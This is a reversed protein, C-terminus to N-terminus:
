ITLTCGCGRSQDVEAKVVGALDAAPVASHKIKIENEILSCWRVVGPSLERRFNPFVSRQRDEDIVSLM